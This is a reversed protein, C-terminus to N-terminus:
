SDSLLEGLATAARWCDHFMNYLPAPALRVVDPERFDCIVGHEDRLRAALARAGPVSVSLQCGRAGPDRPTLLRLPTGDAEEDLLRELYGTLRVSRERLRAFGARDFVQLSTRLPALGIISPTSVAFGHAGPRSAFDPEM